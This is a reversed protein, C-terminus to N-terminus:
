SVSYEPAEDNDAVRTASIIDMESNLKQASIVNLGSATFTFVPTGGSTATKVGNAGFSKITASSYEYKARSTGLKTWHLYHEVSLM